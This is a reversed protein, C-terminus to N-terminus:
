PQNELETETATVPIESVFLAAVNAELKQVVDNSM